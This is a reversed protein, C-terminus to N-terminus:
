QCTITTNTHVKQWQEASLPSKSRVFLTFDRSQFAEMPGTESEVVKVSNDSSSQQAFSRDGEQASLELDKAGKMMASV